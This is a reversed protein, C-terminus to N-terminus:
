PEVKWDTAHIVLWRVALARKAMGGAEFAAGLQRRRASVRAWWGSGDDHKGVCGVVVGRISVTGDREVFPEPMTLKV